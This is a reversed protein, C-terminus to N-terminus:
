GSNVADELKQADASVQDVDRQLQPVLAVLGEVNAADVNAVKHSIRDVTGSFHKLDAILREQEDKAGGPPALRSLKTTFTAVAAKFKTAATKFQAPSQSASLSTGAARADSQFQQAAQTVATNYTDGASSGCGAVLLAGGAIAAAVAVRLRRATM